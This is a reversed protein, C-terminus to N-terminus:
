NKICAGTWEATNASGSNQNSASVNIWTWGSLCQRIGTVPSRMMILCPAGVNNHNAANYICIGGWDGSQAGSAQKWDNIDESFYWFQHYDTDYVLLGDHPNPINDRQITNMTPILLGRTNSAIHMISSADPTTTGVGVNNSQANVILTGAFFLVIFSYFKIM